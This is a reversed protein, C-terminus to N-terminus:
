WRWRDPPTGGRRCRSWRPSGRDPFVGSTICKTQGVDRKTEIGARWTGVRHEWHIGAAPAPNPSRARTSAPQYVPIGSSCRVAARSRDVVAAALVVIWAPASASNSPTDAAEGFSSRSALSPSGGRGVPSEARITSPSRVLRSASRSSAIVCFGGGTGGVCRSAPMFVQRRTEAGALHLQRETSCDASTIFAAMAYRSGCM